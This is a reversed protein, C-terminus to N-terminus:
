LPPWVNGPSGSSPSALWPDAPTVPVAATQSWPSMLPMSETPGAAVVPPMDRQPIAPWLDDPSSWPLGPQRAANPSSSQQTVVPSMWPDSGRRDSRLSATEAPQPITLPPTDGWLNDHQPATSPPNSPAAFAWPDPSSGSQPASVTAPQHSGWQWSTANAGPSVPAASAFSTTAPLSDFAGWPDPAASVRPAAGAPQSDAKLPTADWADYGGSPNHDEPPSSSASSAGGDFDGPCSDSSSLLAHSQAAASPQASSSGWPDRASVEPPTQAPTVISWPDRQVERVQAQANSQTPWAPSSGFFDTSSCDSLPSSEQAQPGAGFGGFGGFSAVTKSKSHRRPHGTEELPATTARALPASRGGRGSTGLSALIASQELLDAETLDGFGQQQQQQQQQRQQQLPPTGVGAAGGHLRTQCSAPSM